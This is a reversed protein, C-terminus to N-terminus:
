SRKRRRTVLAGALGAALLALTAPEPAAHVNLVLSYGEFHVISSGGPTVGFTLEGSLPVVGFLQVVDDVNEATEFDVVTTQGTYRGFVFDPDNDDGLHTGTLDFALGPTLGSFHYLDILDPTVPEGLVFCSQTCLEGLYLTAATAAGGPFTDNPEIPEAVAFAAPSAAVALATSVLGAILTRRPTFKAAREGRGVTRPIGRTLDM